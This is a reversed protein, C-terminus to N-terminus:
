GPSGVLRALQRVLYASLLAVAVFLLACGAALALMRQSTQDISAFLSFGIVGLAAVFLLSASVPRLRPFRGRPLVAGERVAAIPPVRTARLAPGLSAVLTVVIGVAISIIFTRPAYVTSTRPVDIGITGM